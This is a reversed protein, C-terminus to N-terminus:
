ILADRGDLLGVCDAAVPIGKIERTTTNKSLFGTASSSRFIVLKGARILATKEM